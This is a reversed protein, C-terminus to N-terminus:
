CMSWIRGNPALAESTRGLDGATISRSQAAALHSPSPRRKKIGYNKQRAAAEEVARRFEAEHPALPQMAMRPAPCPVYTPGCAAADYEMTTPLNVAEHSPIAHAGINLADSVETSVEPFQPRSPKPM